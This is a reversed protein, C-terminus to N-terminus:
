QKEFVLTLDLDGQPSGIRVLSTLTKGDASVSMRDNFTLGIADVISVVVLTAEDWKASGKVDAGSATFSTETGDTVYRRTTDQDGLDSRQQEVITLAPEAHTINRTIFAPPPLAGFDSKAVNLKWEGSFDPKAALQGGIVLALGLVTALANM